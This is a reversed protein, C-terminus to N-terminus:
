RRLRRTMALVWLALGALSLSAPEPIPVTTPVFNFATAQIQSFSSAENSSSLANNIVVDLKTAGFQYAVGAISLAGNVNYSLTSSWPTDNMTGNSLDFSNHVAMGPLILPSSVPVGDIERINLQTISSRYRVATASTGTGSLTYVGDATLDLRTVAAGPDAMLTFDLQGDTIDGHHGVSPSARFDDTPDFGLANGVLNPPGYLPAIDGPSNAVEEVDLYMVTTGTFDGYEIHAADALSHFCIVVATAIIHPCYDIIKSFSHTMTTSEKFNTLLKNLAGPSNLLWIRVTFRVTLSGDRETGRAPM